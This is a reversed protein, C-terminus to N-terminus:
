AFVEIGKPPPAPFDHGCAFCAPRDRPVRRGCNPCPLRAPWHRHALYGFYAPLGFLLVFLIWVGTWPLGYKRQRRFCLVALVASVIATIPLVPWLEKLDSKLAASYDPSQPRRDFL